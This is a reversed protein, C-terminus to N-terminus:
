MELRIQIIKINIERYFLVTKANHKVSEQYLILFFFSNDDNNRMLEVFLFWLKCMLHRENKETENTTLLHYSIVNNLFKDKFFVTFLCEVILNSDGEIKNEGRVVIYHSYIYRDRPPFDM